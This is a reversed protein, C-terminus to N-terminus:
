RHIQFVRENSHSDIPLFESLMANEFKSVSERRLNFYKILDIIWLPVKTTSKLELIVLSQTDKFVDGHDYHQLMQENPIVNWNSEAHFRMDRDFTVRAYDDVTSLYAKRRYQTLVKPQVQLLYHWYLFENIAAQSKETIDVAGELVQNMFINLDPEFVKTRIKRIIDNKKKKVEFFYPVTPNRGYSRIRLNFRNAQSLQKYNFIKFDDSDFYLSNIVYFHDPEIQSYYDMECYMEVYQSIPEVLDLPILYKLEYRELILPSVASASM